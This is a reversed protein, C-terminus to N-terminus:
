SRGGQEVRPIQIEAVGFAEHGVNGIVGHDQLWGRSHIMGCRNKPVQGVRRVHEAAM